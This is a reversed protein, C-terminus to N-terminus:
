QRRDRREQLQLFALRVRKKELANFAALPHRPIGEQTNIRKQDSSVAVTLGRVEHLVEAARHITELRYLQWIERREGAPSDAVEAIFHHPRNLLNRLRPRIIETHFIRDQHEVLSHERKVM